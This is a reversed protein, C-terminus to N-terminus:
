RPGVGMCAAWRDTGDNYFERCVTPLSPSVYAEVHPIDLTFYVSSAPAALLVWGILIYVIRM